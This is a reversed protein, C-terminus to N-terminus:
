IKKIFKKLCQPQIWIIDGQKVTKPYLYEDIDIFTSEFSNPKIDAEMAIGTNWISKTQSIYPSEASIFVSLIYFILGIM